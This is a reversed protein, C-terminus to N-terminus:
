RGGGQSRPQLEGTWPNRKLRPLEVSAREASPSGPQVSQNAPKTKDFYRVSADNKFRLQKGSPTAANTKGKALQANAKAVKVSRPVRAGANRAANQAAQNLAMDVSRDQRRVRRRRAQRADRRQQNRDSQRQTPRSSYSSRTRPRRSTATSKTTKKKKAALANPVTLLASAILAPLFVRRLM